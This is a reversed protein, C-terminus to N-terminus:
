GALLGGPGVLSVGHAGASAMLEAALEETAIKGALASGPAPEMVITKDVAETM